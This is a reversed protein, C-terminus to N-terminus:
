YATSLLRRLRCGQLSNPMVCTAVSCCGGTLGLADLGPSCFESKSIYRYTCSRGSVTTDSQSASEGLGLFNGDEARTRRRLQKDKKSKSKPGHGELKQRSEHM